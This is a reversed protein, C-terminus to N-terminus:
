SQEGLRAIASSVEAATAPRDSPDKQLMHMVLAQVSAPVTEPLDPVPEELHARLTQFPERGAFPVHAALMEYLVVGLAYIDARGDVDRGVITEPALYDATGVITDPPTLKRDAVMDRLAAALGFDTLVPQGNSRLLINSPKVDRHILGAAHVSALAEALDATIRLAEPTELPSPFRSYLLRDLADPIWEMAIYAGGGLHESVQGVDLLRIVSPHQIRQLIAAELELRKRLEPAAGWGAPLVKLAVAVGDQEHVASYVVAMGGSGIQAMVRYPGFRTGVLGVGSVDLRARELNVTAVSLRQILVRNLIRLLSVNQNVLQEFESRQLTWLTTNELAVVDASRPEGSVLAMEGFCDGPALQNISISDPGTGLCVDLTGSQVIYFRDGPEGRRCIVSGAPVREEALQRWIAVLDDVSAERFLPINRLRHAMQADRAQYEVVHAELFDQGLRRAMAVRHHGDVVYYESPSSADPMGPERKLKYVDIAPLAKGARMAEGVRQFRRTMAKGTRYFFDSRLVQWRGVSGVIKEVEITTVGRDIASGTGGQADLAEKFSRLPRHKRQFRGLIARWAASARM